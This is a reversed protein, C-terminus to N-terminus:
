SPPKTIGFKCSSRLELSFVNNSPWQQTNHPPIQNIDKGSTEQYDTKLVKQLEVMNWCLVHDQRSCMDVQSVDSELVVGVPCISRPM